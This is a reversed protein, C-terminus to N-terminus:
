KLQETQKNGPLYILSHLSLKGAISSKLLFSFSYKLM